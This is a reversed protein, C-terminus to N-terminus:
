AAGFAARVGDVIEELDSQRLLQHVPLSLVEDAALRAETLDGVQILPHTTFVQHDPLVRPYYVASGIEREALFRRLAARGIPADRGVRVTYQHWVHRSGEPVTPTTLGTLGQLHGTLYAANQQRRAMNSELRAMQGLALAAAMDTLRYNYGVAVYQYRDRMGQNRLVQLLDADGPDAATVVGGEGAALNKTAYLSFCGLDATGVPYDGDTACHAQAADEVLRLSRERAIPLLSTMDAALGYLHVPMLAKTRSNVAEAVQEPRVNFTQPDIDVLRAVAGRGLIANLTAVFTFPSTVVEDGPGVGAVELALQLATTGSSTAVAHQAGALKAFGTEFEAVMAGQVLHGSSLVRELLSREETGVLVQSVGIRM